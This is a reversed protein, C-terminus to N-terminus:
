VRRWSTGERSDDLQIGQSALQERIEDARQYNKQLKAQQREEILAEVEEAPVGPSDGRVDKLYQEAPLALLGLVLGMERLQAALQAAGPADGAIKAQNLEDVAGGMLTLAQRTNFDDNMAEAFQQLRESEAQEPAAKSEVGRLAHYFRDLSRKAEDLSETSYNIESRYHSSLVFFRIVEPHYQKLVERITFFNGLSKSMKEGDIRLPGAHLWYNAYVCGNAAESQAIENEHHPFRLDPGGGHIDFTDGLCSKSMASCEIHWGPRGRGLGTDWGTEEASVAKWLAFDRPDEKNPDVEVRAGSLLEDPNRGSLKGYDAFHKIHYYYDGNGGRYAYGRDVLTEVMAVIAEIHQTARPQQDPVLMGLSAFDQEMAAINTEVVRQWPQGTERARNLIKDDVDTINRVFTVQWGAWRLFRVISDFNIFAKAHGLHCLDYVTMGCVYMGIKGAERPQFDVVRKQLSDYLKLNNLKM